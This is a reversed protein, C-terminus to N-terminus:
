WTFGSKGGLSDRDRWDTPWSIKDWMADVRIRANRKSVYYTYGVAWVGLTLVSMALHFKVQRWEITQYSTWEEGTWYRLFKGGYPCKYWGPRDVPVGKGPYMDPCLDANWRRFLSKVM